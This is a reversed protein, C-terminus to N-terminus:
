LYVEKFNFFLIMAITLKRLGRTDGFASKTFNICHGYLMCWSMIAIQLDIFDFLLLNSSRWFRSPSKRDTTYNERVYAHNLYNHNQGFEILRQAKLHYNLPLGM